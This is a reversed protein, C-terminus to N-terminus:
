RLTSPILECMREHYVKRLQTADYDMLHIWYLGNKGQNFEWEAESYEDESDLDAYGDRDPKEERLGDELFEPLDGRSWLPLVSALAWDVVGSIKGQDDVLINTWSLNPHWLATKEPTRNPFAESVNESLDEIMGLVYELQNRQEDDEANKLKNKLDEIILTTYSELWDNPTLFPGRSAEYYFLRNDVFYVESVLERVSFQTFETGEEECLTGIVSFPRESLRIVIDAVQHVLSVKQQDNMKRWQKELSEGPMLTMLIWEFGLENDATDDYAIVEPVPIDTTRKVYKLTAIEGKTKRGPDVPLVVKFVFKEVGTDILYVKGYNGDSLSSIQCPSDETLSLLRRSLKEVKKMDPKSTWIPTEYSYFREWKVGALASSDM